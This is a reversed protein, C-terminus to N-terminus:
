TKYCAHEAVSNFVITNQWLCVYGWFLSLIWSNRPSYRGLLSVGRPLIKQHNAIILNLSKFHEQSTKPSSMLIVRLPPPPPPPSLECFFIRCLSITHFFYGACSSTQFNYQLRLIVVPHTATKAIAFTLNLILLYNETSKAKWHWQPKGTTM